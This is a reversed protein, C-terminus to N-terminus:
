AHGCGAWCQRGVSQSLWTQTTDHAHHATRAGALGRHQNLGGRRADGRSDVRFRNQQKRTRRADAHRGARGDRGGHQTVTAGRHPLGHDAGNVGVGEGDKPEGRLAITIRRRPQDGAGLLVADDALQECAVELVAVVRRHRPRRTQPGRQAGDAEGGFQAIQQGPAGLAAHIGNFQLADAPPRAPGFPHGRAPERLDVLLHHQQAGRDPHGRRLRRNGCQAGGFEDARGELRERHVGVQQGGFPGPDPHQEDVVGLMEVRLGRPQHSHQRGSGVEGDDCAIGRLRHETVASGIGRKKATVVIADDHQGLGTAAPLRDGARDAADRSAQGADVTRAREDADLVRGPDSATRM